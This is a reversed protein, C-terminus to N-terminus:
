ASNLKAGRLRCGSALGMWDSTLFSSVRLCSRTLRLKFRAGGAPNIMTTKRKLKIKALSLVYIM